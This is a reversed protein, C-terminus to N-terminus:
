PLLWPRGLSGGLSLYVVAHCDHRRAPAPIGFVDIRVGRRYAASWHHPPLDLEERRRCLWNLVLTVGGVTIWAAARLDPRKWRGQWALWGLLAAGGVLCRFLVVTQPTQGSSLVFAGITGSLTMALTMRWAGGNNEM